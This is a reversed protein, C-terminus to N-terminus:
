KKKSAIVTKKLHSPISAEIKSAKAHNPVTLTYLFRSCRVKFKTLVVGGKGSKKYVTVATADPRKLVALYDRLDKLARPM